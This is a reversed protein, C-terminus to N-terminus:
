NVAKAKADMTYTGMRNNEDRRIENSEEEHDVKDAGDLCGSKSGGKRSEEKASRGVKGRGKIKEEDRKRGRWRCQRRKRAELAGDVSAVHPRAGVLTITLKKKTNEEEKKKTVLTKRCNARSKLILTRWGGVGKKLKKECMGNTNNM